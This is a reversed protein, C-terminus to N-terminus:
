HIDLLSTIFYSPLDQIGRYFIIMKIIFDWFMQFRSKSISDRVQLFHMWEDCKRQTNM